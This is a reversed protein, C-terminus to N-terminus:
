IYKSLVVKVNEQQSCQQIQQLLEKKATPSMIKSEAQEVQEPTNEFFSLYKAAFEHCNPTTLAECDPMIGAIWKSPQYGQSLLLAKCFMDSIAASGREWPMAHALWWHIVGIKECLSSIPLDPAEFILTKVLLDIEKFIKPWQKISTHIFKTPMLKTLHLASNEEETLYGCVVLAKESKLSSKSNKDLIEKGDIIVEDLFKNNKLDLKSIKEAYPLYKNTIITGMYGVRDEDEVRKKGFFNAGLPYNEPQLDVAIQHRCNALYDLFSSLNLKEERFLNERQFLKSIHLIAQYCKKNYYKQNQTYESESNAYSKHQLDIKNDMLSRSPDQKLNRYILNIFKEIEEQSQNESYKDLLLALIEPDGLVANMEFDKSDAFAQIFFDFKEASIKYTDLILKAIDAWGNKMALLIEQEPWHLKKEDLNCLKQCIQFRFLPESCSLLAYYLPLHNKTDSIGVDVGAKVFLELQSLIDNKLKESQLIFSDMFTKAGSNDYPSSLSEFYDPIHMMIKHIITFGKENKALFLQPAKEEFYKFTALHPLLGGSDLLQHLFNDGDPTKNEIDIGLAFFSELWDQSVQSEIKAGNLILFEALKQREEKSLFSGIKKEVLLHLLSHHNKNRFINIDENQSLLFNFIEFRINENMPTNLVIYFPHQSSYSNTKDTSFGNQYAKKIAQIDGKFISDILLNEETETLQNQIYNSIEKVKNAEYSKKINSNNKKLIKYVILSLFYM